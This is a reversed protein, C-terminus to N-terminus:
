GMIEESGEGYSSTSYPERLWLSTPLLGKCRLNPSVLYMGEAYVYRM